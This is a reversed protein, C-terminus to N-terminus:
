TNLGLAATWLLYAPWRDYRPRRITTARDLQLRITTTAVVKSILKRDRQTYHRPSARHRISTVLTMSKRDVPRPNSERGGRKRSRDQVLLECVRTGRYDLLIFQYPRLSPFDGSTQRRM